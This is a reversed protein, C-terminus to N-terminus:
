QKQINDIQQGEIGRQKQLVRLPGSNSAFCSADVRATIQAMIHRAKRDVPSSPCPYKNKGVAFIGQCLMATTCCLFSLSAYKNRYRELM